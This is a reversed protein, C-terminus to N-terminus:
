AAAEGEPRTVAEDDLAVLRGGIAELFERLTWRRGDDDPRRVPGLLARWALRHGAKM